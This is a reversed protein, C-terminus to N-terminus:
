ATTDARLDDDLDLWAGIVPGVTLTGTLGADAAAAAFGAHLEALLPAPLGDATQLTVDLRRGEIAAVLQVAGLVPLRIQLAVTCGAQMGDGLAVACSLRRVEDGALVPGALVPIRLVRWSRGDATRRARPLLADELDDLLAGGDLADIRGAVEDGLWDRAGEAAAALFFALGVGFTSDCRPLGGRVRQAADADLAGLVPLLRLVQADAEVDTARGVGCPAPVPAFRDPLVAPLLIPHEPRNM